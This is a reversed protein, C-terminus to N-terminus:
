LAAIEKLLRDVHGTAKVAYKALRIIGDKDIYFTSRVVGLATKGYLKKEGWAGYAEHVKLETDSLLPFNLEHKDKFKDHSALSDKSIGLVVTDETELRSLNDRFDCAQKTCGPTNDRPYFYIIVNKSGKYSSLTIDKGTNSPLTFDPAPAGVELRM